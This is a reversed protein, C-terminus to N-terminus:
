GSGTRPISLMPSRCVAKLPRGPMRGVRGRSTRASTRTAVVVPRQAVHVLSLDHMLLGVDHKRAVQLRAVHSLGSGLARRQHADLIARDGADLVAAQVHNAKGLELNRCLLRALTPSRASSALCANVSARAVRLASTPRARACRRVSGIRM